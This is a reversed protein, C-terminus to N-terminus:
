YFPLSTHGWGAGTEIYHAVSSYGQSSTAVRAWGDLAWATSGDMMQGGGDTAVLHEAALRPVLDHCNNVGLRFAGQPNSSQGM